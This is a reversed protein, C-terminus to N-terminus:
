VSALSTLDFYYTIVEIVGSSFNGGNATFRINTQGSAIAPAIMTDVKTDQAAAEASGLATADGGVYAASWTDDGADDVVATNVNFSTGLLMAGTPINITTDSTGAAALTHVERGVQVNLAAIGGEAASSFKVASKFNSTSNTVVGGGLTLGFSSSIGANEVTFRTTGGTSFRLLNDFDQFIGDGNGGIDISPAAVTGAGVIITDVNLDESGTGTPIEGFVPIAM